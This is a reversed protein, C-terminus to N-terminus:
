RKLDRYFNEHKGVADPYILCVQEIFTKYGLKCGQPTCHEHETHPLPASVPPLAQM